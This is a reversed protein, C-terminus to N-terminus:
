IRTTELEWVGSDVCHTGAQPSQWSRTKTTCSQYSPTRRPPAEHPFLLFESPQSVYGPDMVACGARWNRRALLGNSTKHSNRLERQLQSPLNLSFTPSSIGTPALGVATGETGLVLCFPGPLWRGVRCVMWTYLLTLLLSVAARVHEASLVPSAAAAPVASAM